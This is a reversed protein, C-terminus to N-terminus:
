NIIQLALAVLSILYVENKETFAVMKNDTVFINSVTANLHGITERKQVSLLTLRQTVQRSNKASMQSLNGSTTRLFDMQCCLIDNNLWQAEVAWGPFNQYFLPPPKATFEKESAAEKPLIDTPDIILDSIKRV